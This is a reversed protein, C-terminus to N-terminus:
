NCNDKFTILMDSLQNNLNDMLEDNAEPNRKEEMWQYYVKEFQDLQTPNLWYCNLAINAPKQEHITDEVISRFEKNSFRATWTPLMVSVRYSYFDEPIIKGSHTNKVYLGVKKELPVIRVEDSIFKFLNEMKEHTEEVSINAEISVFHYVDDPTKFHVEFDKDRTAEVSYNSFVNLHPKIEQILKEREEFSYQKASRLFPKRNEDYILVGHNHDVLDPRLLIHELIHLGESQINLEKIVNVLELVATNAENFSNFSGIKQWGQDPAKFIAYYKDEDNENVKGVQYNTLTIGDKLFASLMNNSRFPLTNKLLEKRKEESFAKLDIEETDIFDFSGEIFEQTWSEEIKAEEDWSARDDESANEDLLTLGYEKYHGILSHANYGMVQDSTKVGLGLLISIKAEMGTINDTNLSQELYNFARARNKNIGSLSKLLRTKNQILHREFEEENFYYNFQSLSYQTYSEGHIALLYDLFRNRRDTYNDKAKVLQPLGAYYSLSIGGLLDAEDIFEHKKEKLLSKVDPVNDLTQYFYTQKVDQKLSFLTKSNALQSLYNAFMQEFILLYGKLQKVQAKRTSTSSKPIGYQGIGYTLPFQNQISYYSEVDLKKGLPISITEESLRYVRKNASQFENLKREVVNYDISTYHVAGRFFHISPNRSQNSLMTVLKPLEEEGIEVQNDYRTDGVKLYLNKVSVVGSVQMIIKIIESILIKNSKPQLESTKIFGHKLLPGNFIDNLAYGEQMLEQLSYFRIEPSLYEDVKYYIQALISEIDKIGDVEVDAFISVELTKLIKIEEIDECINRSNCFVKRTKEAIAMKNEEGKINQDIDILIKYLGRFSTGDEAIPLVWLNKLEFVQDFILKRYDNITLANCPLIEHAKLFTDDEPSNYLHDQIDFDTRYCLDTIAYCLQELITVGPDHENYDTWFSGTLQQIAKIGEARLQYYDLGSNSEKESSISAPKEM